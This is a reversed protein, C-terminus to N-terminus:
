VMKEQNQYVQMLYHYVQLTGTKKCFLRGIYKWWGKSNNPEM